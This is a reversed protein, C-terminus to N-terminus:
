PSGPFYRGAGENSNSVNPKDTGMIIQAGLRALWGALQGWICGFCATYARRTSEWGCSKRNQMATIVVEVRKPERYRSPPKGGVGAVVYDPADDRGHHFEHIICGQADGSSWRPFRSASLRPEIRRVVCNKGHALRSIVSANGALAPGTPKRRSMPSACTTQGQVASRQKTVGELGGLTCIRDFHPLVLVQFAYITHQQLPAM